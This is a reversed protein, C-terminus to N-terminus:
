YIVHIEPPACTLCAGRKALEETLARGCRCCAHLPKIIIEGERMEIGMPIDTTWGHRDRVHKPITIQGRKNIKYCDM